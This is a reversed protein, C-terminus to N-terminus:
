RVVFTVNFTRESSISEVGSFRITAKLSQVSTAKTTVNWEHVGYEIMSVPPIGKERYLTVGEDSIELGPTGTMVWTHGTRSVDPLRILISNNPGACITANNQTENIILTQGPVLSVTCNLPTIEPQAAQQSFGLCGAGPIASLTLMGLLIFGTKQYYPNM